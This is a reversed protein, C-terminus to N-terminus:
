PALWDALRLGPVNAFDQTNHTVLTLDHVLATAAIMLDMEPAPTGRDLLAARVQGFRMAVDRTVDLVKVDGLMDNLSQLRKPAAKSRIVWTYLEGLAVASISLGGSHQIFRNWVAPSGKLYASCIDSDLLFSV